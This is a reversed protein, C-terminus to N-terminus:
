KTKNKNEFSYQSSILCLEVKKIILYVFCGDDTIWIHISKIPLSLAFHRLFLDVVPVLQIYMRM